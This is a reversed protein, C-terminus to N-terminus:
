PQGFNVGKYVWFGRGVAPDKRQVPRCPLSGLGDASDADHDFRSAIELETDDKYEANRGAYVDLEDGIQELVARGDVPVHGVHEGGPVLKL